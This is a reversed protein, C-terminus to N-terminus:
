KKNLTQSHCPQDSHAEFGRMVCDELPHVVNSCEVAYGGLHSDLIQKKKQFHQCNNCNYQPLVDTRLIGNDTM